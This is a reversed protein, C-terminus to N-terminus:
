GNNLDKNAQQSVGDFSWGFKEYYAQALHLHFEHDIDFFAMQNINVADIHKPDIIKKNDKILQAEFVYVAGTDFYYQKQQDLVIEKPIFAGSIEKSVTYLDKPSHWPLTVSMTSRGSSKEFHDICKKLDSRTRFPSTPQLLVCNKANYHDLVFEIVSETSSDPTSIEEPRELVNIGYQRGSASSRESDTVVVIRNQPFLTLACEIAWEILTKDGIKQNNKDLIRQSGARAPIVVIYDQYPFPM